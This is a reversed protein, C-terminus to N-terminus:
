TPSYMFFNQEVWRGASLCAGSSSERFMWRCAWEASCSTMNLAGHTPLPPLEWSMPRIVEGSIIFHPRLRCLALGNESSGSLINLSLACCHTEIFSVTSHHPPLSGGGNIERKEVNSCRSTMIVNQCHVSPLAVLMAFPMQMAAILILCKIHRFNLYCVPVSFEQKWLEVRNTLRIFTM